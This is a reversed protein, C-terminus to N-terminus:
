AFSLGQKVLREQTDWLQEEKELDVTTAPPWGCFSYCKFRALVKGYM